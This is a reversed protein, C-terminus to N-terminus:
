RVKEGKSRVLGLPGGRPPTKETASETGRNSELVDTNRVVRGQPARVKREAPLVLAAIM